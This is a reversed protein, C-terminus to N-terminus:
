PSMLHGEGHGLDLERSVHLRAQSVVVVVVVVVVLQREGRGGLGRRGVGEFQGRDFDQGRLRLTVARVVRLVVGHALVEGAEELAGGPPVMEGPAVAVLSLLPPAQRLGVAGGGVVGEGQAALQHQAVLRLDGGQQLARGLAQQAGRPAAPAALAGVALGVPAAQLEPLLPQVDAVDWLTALHVLLGGVQLGMQAPMGPLPGEDAVPQETALAERAGVLQLPVQARVRPLLAEAALLTALPEHPAVVEGFVDLGMLGPLPAHAVGRGRVGQQGVDLPLSPPPSLSFM